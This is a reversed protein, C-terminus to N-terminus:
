EKKGKIFNIILGLLLAILFWVLIPINFVKNNTLLGFLTTFLNIMFDM